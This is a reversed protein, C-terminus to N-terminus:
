FSILGKCYCTAKYLSNKALIETSICKAQNGYPNIRQLDNMEFLNNKFSVTSEFLGNSPKVSFTIHIIVIKRKKVARHVQQLGLTECASINKLLDNIYNVVFHATKIALPDSNELKEEDQSCVCYWEPIGADDCSRTLPVERFLSQGRPPKSFHDWIRKDTKGAEGPRGGLTHLVDVFTAYLDYTSTLRNSNLKLSNRWTSNIWKPLIISVMPMSDELKGLETSRITDMRNGHDGLIVVISRNFLGENYSSNLFHTLDDDIVGLTNVYNHSPENLLSFLFKPHKAYTRLFSKLYSFYVAHKPRSGLCLRSSSKSFLSDEAALWYTHMYHHTPQEDIGEALYNFMNIHPQDEAYLTAAGAKAFDKWIFPWDKFHIQPTQLLPRGTLMPVVNPFTNPGVKNFGILVTAHLKKTLLKYAKPLQRMFNSKSVSDLGIVLVDLEKEEYKRITEIKQVKALYDKYVPIGMWNSCQVYVFDSTLKIKKGDFSLEEAYEVNFDDREPRLIERYSCYLSPVETDHGEEALATENWCLYGEDDIQLYFNYRNKCVIPTAVKIHALISADFPHLLPFQCSVNPDLSGIEEM